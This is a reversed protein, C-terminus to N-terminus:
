SACGAERPARAARSGPLAVLDAHRASGYRRVFDVPGRGAAIRGAERDALDGAPGAAFALRRAVVPANGDLAQCAACYEAPGLPATVPDGTLHGPGASRLLRLAPSSVSLQRIRPWSDTAIHGLRLHAPRRPGDVIDQNCCATVTGDFCIVPWAALLCPAMRGATAAAGVAGHWGAARGLARVDSVLMPVTEGFTRLVDATVDDTYPDAPGTGVIHLSVAIDRDLLRRLLAFVDRRPVQSEHFADLSVSCHDVADLARRVPGPFRGSTAFFAGTLVASRAGSARALSALEAVLRPRLMPEGGTFIIVEPRDQRTFTGFFRLLPDGGPQEGAMTSATSCHACSMPCRRTIGALLGACRVPRLGIIEALEM